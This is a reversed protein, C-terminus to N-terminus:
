LSKGTKYDVIKSFYKSPIIGRDGIGPSLIVNNKSQQFFIGDKMAAKIDLYIVVQCSSRMGSIVGDEGPLGVAFHIHQRSMKCLGEKKITDLVKYYTGHIVVSPATDVTLIEMEVEVDM